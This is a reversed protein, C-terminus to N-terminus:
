QKNFWDSAEEVLHPPLRSKSKKESSHNVTELYTATTCAVEQMSDMYYRISELMGDLSVFSTSEAAEATSPKQITAAETNLCERDERRFGM